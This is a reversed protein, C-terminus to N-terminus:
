KVFLREVPVIRVNEAKVSLPFQSIKLDEELIAPPKPTPYKIPSPTNNVLAEKLASADSTVFVIEMNGYPLHRKVAENVELRTMARLKERFIELHSGPIGYFRDDLAYGLRDMTTEAYHLIYKSLFNRAQLFEAETLGFESMRQMERLAARLAFLRADNPVPRIWIEFIQKRRAANQPPMRRSGGNPFNEIYSYDGYNLGRSERIVQYLHSASNRHEGLWSNAVALPYWQEQGRLVDIPFGLSIATAPADKKEVITVHMGEISRPSPPPTKPPAGPPLRGLDGRLKGVLGEDFSGGLGIVVNQRTFHGEYFRRVDDLTISRVNEILGEPIHGYPTGAFITDYLVAKGLEEDSSYRLTNELFNLTQSKLRDLDEQKFAPTLIADTLLPYYAALNDKHIRGELVTMEASVNSSYGGALPFLLALIESYSHKRTSADTLMSATIAALGEKGKPDDQSGVNFLLRFSITPDSSVPLRVVHDDPVVGPAPSAVPPKDTSAKENVGGAEKEDAAMAASLTWSLALCACLATWRM